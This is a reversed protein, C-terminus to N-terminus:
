NLTDLLSKIDPNLNLANLIIQLAEARSSDAKPDFESSDKGDVVGAQALQKIADAAYSDSVDGFNGKSADKSVAGLNIVRSLIVAMEERSITKDPKFSGDEYGGIVGAKALAEIAGKAWHNGVDSLDANSTGTSIAFVRTIISAFEARTIPADPKATGDEYGQIIGLKVFTEVTKEAWHGKVDSPEPTPTPNSKHEEVQRKIVDVVSKDAKVVDSNFIDKPAQPKTEPTTEPKTEPTTVPPTTVGGGGGGTNNNNNDNNKPVPVVTVNITVSQGQLTATITATGVAVGLAKGNIYDLIASNSTALSAIQDAQVTTDDSMHAVINLSAQAGVEVTVNQTATLSTVTAVYPAVTVNVTASQGQYTTTIVSTGNAVGVIHGNVVTAVSNDSSTWTIDAQAVPLSSSDSFHVQATVDAFGGVNMTATERSLELGTITPLQPLAPIVLIPVAVSQGGYTITVVTEGLSIGHIETSALQFSAINPNLFSWALDTDIVATTADSYTATVVPKAVSSHEIITLTTPSATLSVVKPQQQVATVIVPVNTSQGGYTITLVTSGVGLGLVGGNAVVAVTPNDIAWTADALAITKTSQDSYTAVLVTTSTAGVGVSIPNPTVALSVVTPVQPKANVVTVGFTRTFGGNTATIIATGNAVGTVVGNTDVTAVTPASSVWSTTPNSPISPGISMLINAFAQRTQGVELDAEDFAVSLGIPMPFMINPLVNIILPATQGNYTFTATTNGVVGGSVIGQADIVAIGPPSYSWTGLATVNQTSSDSFHAIAIIPPASPMGQIVGIAPQSLTVGTLTPAANQGQYLSQAFFTSADTGGIAIQALSGTASSTLTFTNASTLSAVIAVNYATLATNIATVVDDMDDLNTTLNIPATNEGDSITFYKDRDIIDYGSASTNNFFTSVDTGSLTLVASNGTNNSIIRFVTEDVYETYINAGTLSLQDEIDALLASMNVYNQDLVVTGFGAGNTVTFTKSNGDGFDLSSIVNSQFVASGAPLNAFSFNSVSKSVAVAPQATVVVNASAIPAAVAGFASFVLSSAIIGSILKKSAKNGSM